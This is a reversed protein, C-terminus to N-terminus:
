KFFKSSNVDATEYAERAKQLADGFENLLDSMELMWKHAQAINENFIQSAESTWKEPSTTLENTLNKLNTAADAYEQSHQKVEAAAESMQSLVVEFEAM